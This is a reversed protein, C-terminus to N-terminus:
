TGGAGLIGKSKEWLSISVDVAGLVTFFDAM